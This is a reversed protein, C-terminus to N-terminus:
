RFYEVMFNTLSDARETSKIESKSTVPHRLFVSLSLLRTYEWGFRGILGVCSTGAVGVDPEPVM